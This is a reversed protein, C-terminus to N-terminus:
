RRLWARAWFGANAFLLDARLTELDVIYLSSKRLADPPTSLAVYRGSPSWVPADVFASLTSGDRDLVESFQMTDPDLVAIGGPIDLLLRGAPTWAMQRVPSEVDQTEGDPGLLGLRLRNDGGSGGDEYRIYALYRGDPSWSEWGWGQDHVRTEQGSEINLVSLGDAILGDEALRTRHLTIRRGDPSWSIGGGGTTQVDPPGGSLDVVQRSGGDGLGLVWIVRSHILTVGDEARYEFEGMEVALQEGDPSLAADVINRAEPLPISRQDEGLVVVESATRAVVEGRAIWGLLWFPGPARSVLSNEGTAADFTWVDVPASTGAEPLTYALARGDSAWHFELGAVPWAGEAVISYGSGSLIGISMVADRGGSPVVAHAGTPDPV